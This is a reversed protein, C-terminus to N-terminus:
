QNGGEEVEEAAEFRQTYALVDALDFRAFEGMPEIRAVAAAKLLAESVEISDDGDTGPRFFHGFFDRAEFIEDMHMLRMTTARLAQDSDGHERMAGVVAMMGRNIPIDTLHLGQESRPALPARAGEQYVQMMALFRTPDATAQLDQLYQSKM